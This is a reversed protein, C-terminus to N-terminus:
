DRLGARRRGQVVRQGVLLPLPPEADDFVEHQLLVGCVLRYQLRREGLDPRAPSAGADLVDVMRPGLLEEVALLEWLIPFEFAKKTARPGGPV